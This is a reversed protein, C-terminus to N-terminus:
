SQPAAETRRARLALLAAGGAALLDAITFIMRSALAMSLAVGAGVYPMLAAVLIAERFGLGSPALFAFMGATMGLAFAGICVFVGSVGPAAQSNALLWLHIGMAVWAVVSWGAVSGVGRWTIPTTLPARRVLRLFLQVLWTLVKPYACVLSIPLLVLVVVRIPTGVADDFLVGVGFVGLLLAIATSIGTSVLSALFSRSRPVGARRGLEMQLVFAWLSGPLYKALLGVLYIQSATPVAVKHGVDTLAARWGMTSAALGVLVMVLSLVASQWPIALLHDKVDHWQTATSYVVAALVATTFVIRAANLGIRRWSRGTGVTPDTRTGVEPKTTTM